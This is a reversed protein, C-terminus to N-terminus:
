ATSDPAESSIPAEPIFNSSVEVTAHLNGSVENIAVNAYDAGGREFFGGAVLEHGDYTVNRMDLRRYKSRYGMVVVLAQPKAVRGDADFFEIAGDLAFGVKVWPDPKAENEKLQAFAKKSVEAEQFAQGAFQVLSVREGGVLTYVNSDFAFAPDVDEVRAEFSVGKIFYTRGYISLNQLRKFNKLWNESVADGLTLLKIGNKEAYRKAPASFGRESVVVTQTIGLKRHKERFGEIPRLELPKALATCEIGIRFPIGGGVGEILIDIERNTEAEADFIMASETIRANAGSLHRNIIKVLKQFYNTRAPM